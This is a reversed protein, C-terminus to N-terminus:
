TKAIHSQDQNAWAVVTPWVSNKVASLGAALAASILAILAIKADAFHHSTIDTIIPSIGLVFVGVFSQWFTHLPRIYSPHSLALQHIKVLLNKM